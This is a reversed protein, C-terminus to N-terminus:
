EASRHEVWAQATAEMARLWTQEPYREARHRFMRLSARAFADIGQPDAKSWGPCESVLQEAETPTHGAAILQLVLSAPDIFGAGRTPWAWDVAWSTGAGVLFNSPAVDGHLLTDGRFLLAESDDAFADWGTEHWDEVLAPLPIEQVRGLLDLVAPLDPSGPEFRSPRGEVQEFGLAMWQDNETHWCLRPSVSRVANNILRERILSDRRGGERNRVGKVFFRGLDGDILVLVDTMFGHETPRMEAVSGTFPRVLDLFDDDPLRETM